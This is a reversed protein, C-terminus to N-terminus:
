GSSGFYKKKGLKDRMQVKALQSYLTTRKENWKQGLTTSIAQFAVIYIITFTVWGYMVQM